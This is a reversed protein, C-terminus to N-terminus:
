RGGLLSWLSREDALLEGHSGMAELVPTLGPVQPREPNVGAGGKRGWKEGSGAWGGDQAGDASGQKYNWVYRHKQGRPRQELQERQAM